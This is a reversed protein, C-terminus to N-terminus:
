TEGGENKLLYTPKRQPTGDMKIVVKEAHALRGARELKHLQRLVWQPSRGTAEELEMRTLGGGEEAVDALLTEVLERQADDETLDLKDEM